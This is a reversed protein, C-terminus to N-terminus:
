LKLKGKRFANMLAGMLKRVGWWMFVLGIGATVTAAIVGVVTSVSIQATLADLVAKWDASTVASAATGSALISPM